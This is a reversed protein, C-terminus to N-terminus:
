TWRCWFWPWNKGWQIIFLDFPCDRLRDRVPEAGFDGATSHLEFGKDHLWLQDCIIVSCGRNFNNSPLVGNSFVSNVQSELSHVVYWLSRGSRRMLSIKLTGHTEKTLTLRSLTLMGPHPFSNHCYCYSVLIFEQEQPVHTIPSPSSISKGTHAMIM